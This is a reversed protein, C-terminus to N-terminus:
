YRADPMMKSFSNEQDCAPYISTPALQSVARIYQLHLHQFLIIKLRSLHCPGNENQVFLIIVFCIDCVFLRVTKPNKVSSIKSM